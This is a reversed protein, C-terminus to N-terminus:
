SYKVSRLWYTQASNALNAEETPQRDLGLFYSIADGATQIADAAEDSIQCNFAREFAMLLEVSDLSDAGLDKTFSSSDSIDTLDISLHDAVITRIRTAAYAVNAEVPVRM